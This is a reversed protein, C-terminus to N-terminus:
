GQVFLASEESSKDLMMNQGGGAGCESTLIDKYLDCLRGPYCADTEIENTGAVGKEEM